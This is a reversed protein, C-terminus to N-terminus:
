TNKRHVQVDRDPVATAATLHLVTRKSFGETSQHGVQPGDVVVLDM